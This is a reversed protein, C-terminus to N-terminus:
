PIEQNQKAKEFGLDRGRSGAQLITHRGRRRPVVVGMLTLDDQSSPSLQGASM